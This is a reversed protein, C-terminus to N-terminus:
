QYFYALGTMDFPTCLRKKHISNYLICGGFCEPLMKCNLCEQDSFCDAARYWNVMKEADIIMEGDETISGIKGDPLSMTNVCKWVGLDPTVYFVGEDCCAECSRNFYKNISVKFGLKSAMDYYELLNEVSNANNAKYCETSYVARIVVTVFQRVDKDVCQLANRIDEVSNNQLNIRLYFPAGQEFYEFLDNNIINMLIKFSPAGNKEFARTRNHSEVGGDITIQLTQCHHKVLLHIIKKNLLSGNTTISTSYSFSYKESLKETETLLEAFKDILLLPEGGFLSLEVHRYAKFYKEAYSRLASFYVESTRTGKQPAEFCYPCAFNCEFSPTLILTLDKTNFFNKRYVYELAKLEDYKDDLVFGNDILETLLEPEFFTEVNKLKSNQFDIVNEDDAKLFAKTVSNYVYNTGNINRIINYKSFKV